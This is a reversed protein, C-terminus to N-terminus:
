CAVSFKCDSSIRDRDHQMTLFGHGWQASHEIVSLHGIDHAIDAAMEAVFKGAPDGRLIHSQLPLWGDLCDSCRDTTGCLPFIGARYFRGRYAEQFSYDEWEPLDSRCGYLQSSGDLVGAAPQAQALILKGGCDIHAHTEGHIEFNVLFDRLDALDESNTSFYEKPNEGM